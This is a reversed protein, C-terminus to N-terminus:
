LWNYLRVIGYLSFSSLLALGAVIWFGEPHTGFPIKLMSVNFLTLVVTAPLGLFTLITLKKMVENQKTSVLSNNTERLETLEEIRSELADTVRVYEQFASWLHEPLQRFIDSAMFKMGELIEDHLSLARKFSLCERSMRSLEAVMAREDGSFIRHEIQRMTEHLYELEYGVSKYLKALIHSFISSADAISEKNLITEVEFIKAYKHLADITDYHATIIFKKSLVFDIEQHASLQHTHKWVPFHLVVYVHEGYREARPRPTPSLMDETVRPDISFERAIEQVEEATPAELDIWTIGSKEFRSIM